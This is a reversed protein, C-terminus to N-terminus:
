GQTSLRHEVTIVKARVSNQDNRPHPIISGCKEPKRRPPGLGIISLSVAEFLGGLEASADLLDTLETAVGLRIMVLHKGVADSRHPKTGSGRSIRPIPSQDLELFELRRM